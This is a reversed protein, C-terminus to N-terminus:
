VEVYLPGIDKQPPGSGVIFIPIYRREKGRPARPDAWSTPNPAMRRTAKLHQVPATDEHRVLPYGQDLTDVSVLDM